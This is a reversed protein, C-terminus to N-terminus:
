SPGGGACIRAHLAVASPEQRPNSRRLTGLSLSSASAPGRLPGLAALAGELYSQLIPEAQTDTDDHTEATARQAFLARCVIQAFATQVEADDRESQGPM